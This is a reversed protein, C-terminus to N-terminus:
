AFEEAFSRDVAMAQRVKVSSPTNWATAIPGANQRADGDPTL